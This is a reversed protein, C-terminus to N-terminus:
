TKMEESNIHDESPVIKKLNDDGEMQKLYFNMGCVYVRQGLLGVECFQCKYKYFFTIWDIAVSHFHTGSFVFFVAETLSEINKPM